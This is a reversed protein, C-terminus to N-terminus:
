DSDSKLLRQIWFHRAQYQYSLQLRAKTEVLRAQDKSWRAAWLLALGWAAHDPELEFLERTLGAADALRGKRMHEWYRACVAAAPRGDPWRPLPEGRSQDVVAAPVTKGIADLWLPRSLIEVVFRATLGSDPLGRRRAERLREYAETHQKRRSLNLAAFLPWEWRGPFDHELQALIRDIWTTLPAASCAGAAANWSHIRDVNWIGETCLTSRDGLQGQAGSLELALMTLDDGTILKRAQIMQLCARADAATGAEATRCLEMAALHPESDRPVGARPWIPGANWHEIAYRAADDAPPAPAAARAAPMDGRLLYYNSLNRRIEPLPQPAARLAREWLDRARPANHLIDLQYSGLALDARESLVAHLRATELISEFIHAASERKRSLWAWAADAPWSREMMSVWSRVPDHGPITSLARYLANWTCEPFGTLTRDGIREMAIRATLAAAPERGDRAYGESLLLWARGDDPTEMVFELGVALLRATGGGEPGGVMRLAAERELPLLDGTSALRYRPPRTAGPPSTIWRELELWYTWSNISTGLPLKCQSRLRHVAERATPGSSRLQPLFHQFRDAQSISSATAVSAAPAPIAHRAAPPRGQSLMGLGLVLACGLAALAGVPLAPRRPLVRTPPVNAPVDVAPPGTPPALDAETVTRTREPEEPAADVPDTPVGPGSPRGDRVLGALARNFDVTGTSDKVLQAAKRLDIPLSELIDPNELLAAIRDRLEAASSLRRNPDREFLEMVLASVPIPIEPDLHSPSPIPCLMVDQVWNSVEDRKEIHWRGTLLIYLVCGLAWLDAAERAEEGRLVEPSMYRLTGVQHGEVTLRDGQSARAVGFDCIKVAGDVSVLINGPKMDRHLVGREHLYALGDAARAGLALVLPWSIRGLREVLTEVSEGEVLEMVMYCGDGEEGMDLVRVLNPHAFGAALQMERQFRPRCNESALADTRIVKLAVDRNLTLQHARYVTGMGGQGIAKIIRYDGLEMTM